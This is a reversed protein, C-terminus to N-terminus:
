NSQKKIVTIIQLEDYSFIPNILIKKVPNRPDFDVATVVGILSGLSDQSYVQDGVSVEVERNLSSTIANGNGVLEISTESPFLVGRTTVKNKSFSHVRSTTDFVKAISGILLGDDSMVYDGIAFHNKSGGVILLNGSADKSLIQSSVATKEIQAISQNKELLNELYQTRLNDVELLAIKKELRDNEEVLKKKSYWTEFINRSKKKIEATNTYAVSFPKELLDYLWSYFPTFILLFVLVITSFYIYRKKKKKKDYRYNM